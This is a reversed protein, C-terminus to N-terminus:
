RKAENPNAGSSRVNMLFKLTDFWFPAGLSIALVTGLLGLVIQWWPEPAIAAPVNSSGFWGFALSNFVTASVHQLATGADPEKSAASAATVLSARTASNWEIMKVLKISDADLAAVIAIAIFFIWLSATRRYAGGVRDMTDDFWTEIGNVASRYDGAANALISTLATKLPGPSLASVASELGAFSQAATLSISQAAGIVALLATSFQQSSIYSPLRGRGTQSSAIIPHGFLKDHIQADAIMAAIGAFLGKGRLNMAGAFAENIWSSLLSLAIFICAVGIAVEVISSSFQM